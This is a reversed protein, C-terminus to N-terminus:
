CTASPVLDFPQPPQREEFALWPGLVSGTKAVVDGPHRPMMTRDEGEKAESSLLEM